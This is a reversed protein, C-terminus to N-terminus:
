IKRKLKNADPIIPILRRILDKQEESIEYIGEYLEYNDQYLKEFLLQNKCLKLAEIYKSSFVEESISPLKLVEQIQRNSQLEMIGYLRQISQMRSCYTM